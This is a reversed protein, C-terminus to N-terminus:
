RAFNLTIEPAPLDRNDIYVSEEASCESLMGNSGLAAVKCYYYGYDGSTIYNMNCAKIEDRIAQLSEQDQENGYTGGDSRVYFRIATGIIKENITNYTARCNINTGSTVYLKYISPVNPRPSVYNGSVLEMEYIDNNLEQIGNSTGRLLCYVTGFNGDMAPLFVNTGSVSGVPTLVDLTEDEVKKLYLNYSTANSPTFSLVM